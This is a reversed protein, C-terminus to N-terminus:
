LLKLALKKQYVHTMQSGDWVYSYHPGQRPITVTPPRLAALCEGGEHRISRYVIGWSQKIKMEKGFAQAPVWDDALHLEDYGVRVDHVPKVVNGIYVRMDIEGAEENTYSLFLSRSHISEALATEMNNVAYYIGYQGDSFRSAVSIHTFAAMVPTAGEGTIRDEELVLSLDGMENRLRDNTLSEIYYLENMLAPDVLQEFFNVPPYESSIIRYQHSWDLEVVAPM